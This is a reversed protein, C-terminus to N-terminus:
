QAWRSSSQRLQRHRRRLKSEGEIQEIEITVSNKKFKLKVKVPSEFKPGDADKYAQAIENEYDKTKRDTYFGNRGARPRSKSKPRVPVVLKFKM